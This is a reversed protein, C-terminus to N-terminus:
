RFHGLTAGAASWDSGANGAVQCVQRPFVRIRPLDRTGISPLVRADCRDDGMQVAAASFGSDLISM